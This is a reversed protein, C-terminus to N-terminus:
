AGDSGVLNRAAQYVEDITITQIGDRCVVECNDCRPGWYRFDDLSDVLGSIAVVSINLASAIHMPGTINGIYMTARKLISVLETLQAGLCIAPKHKMMKAIDKIIEKEAATGTLVINAKNQKILRDCVAAFGERNWRLGEQRAGPHVVITLGTLKNDQYFKDAFKEAKNTISVETKKNDIDAGIKQVVRLSFDVEHQPRKRRDDKVKHTLFFGGGSGTFGVRWTASTEFLIKNQKYGPHLAIALDYGRKKVEKEDTFVKNINPNNVVLDKTYSNVLLHIKADFYKHRLARLAPTSLILDGVRDNRVVLIKKVMNEDWPKQKPVIKLIRAILFIFYGIFDYLIYSYKLVLIVMGGLNLFFVIKKIFDRLKSM